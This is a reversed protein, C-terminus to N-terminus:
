LAAQQERRAALWDKYDENLRPAVTLAPSDTEAGILVVGDLATLGGILETQSTPKFRDRIEDLPLRSHGKMMKAVVREAVNDDLRKLALFRRFLVVAMCLLRPALFIIWLLILVGLIHHRVAFAGYSSGYSASELMLGESFSVANGDVQLASARRWTSILEWGFLSLLITSTVAAVPIPSGFLIVLSVYEVIQYILSWSYTSAIVTAVVLGIAGGLTLLRARELREHIWISVPRRSM